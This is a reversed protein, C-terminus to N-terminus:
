EMNPNIRYNHLMTIGIDTVRDVSSQDSFYRIQSEISSIEIGYDEGYDESGLPLYFNTGIEGAVEWEGKGDFIDAKPEIPTGVTVGNIVLKGDGHGETPDLSSSMYIIGVIKASRKDDKKPDFNKLSVRLIKKNDYCMEVLTNKIAESTNKYYHTSIFYNGIMEWQYGDNDKGSSTKSLDGEDFSWREGLEELTCPFPFRVGNLTVDYGLDKMIDSDYSDIQIERMTGNQSSGSGQPDSLGNGDDSSGGFLGCSSLALAAILAAVILYRSNALNFFPCRYQKMGRVAKGVSVFGAGEHLM